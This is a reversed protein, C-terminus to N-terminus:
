ENGGMVERLFLLPSQCKLGKSVLDNLFDYPNGIEDVVALKVRNEAMAYLVGRHSPPKSLIICTVGKSKLFEVLEIGRGKEINKVPNVYLKANEILKKKKDVVAVLIFDCRGFGECVKDESDLPIAIVQKEPEYPEPHIIVKEVFPVEKKVQQEIADIIKHAEELSDCDVYVEAEIFKYSGSNRGSISKIGAVEPFEHMISKVKELTERDISADLLVKLSELLIEFGAHFILLVVIAVAIKEIWPYGAYNAIVGVLVVIASFMDTKVHEADAILSPSNLEEGKKKEYLSFLLTLILTLVIAGLAVLLNTIREEMGGFLSHKAIEYGALFIAFSSIIAVINEVKYLGYPFNKSKMNAITIGAYVSIAAALDSLSHIADAILSASNSVLGASLKILFLTLNLFVSMLAIKKKEKYIM